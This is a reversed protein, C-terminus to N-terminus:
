EYDQEWNKRLRKITRYLITGVNSESLGTLKAIERNTLEAGYKYAVLERERLTLKILAKSIREFDWQRQLDKDLAVYDSIEPINDLSVERIPKRFFDGAVHRAIGLLWGFVDSLDKRYNNRSSWAKEFTIATLEEAIDPDGIKYCFFHFIRPLTEEYIENWDLDKAKLNTNTMRETIARM